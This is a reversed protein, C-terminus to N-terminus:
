STPRSGVDSSLIIISRARGAGVKRLDAPSYPSGQRVIVRTTWMDGMRERVTTEVEEKDAPSLIM